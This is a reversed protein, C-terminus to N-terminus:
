KGGGGCSCEGCGCDGMKGDFALRTFFNSVGGNRKIFFGTFMAIVAILTLVVTM